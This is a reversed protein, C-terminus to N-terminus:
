GGVVPYGADTKLGTDAPADGDGDADPTPKAKDTLQIGRKLIAAKVTKRGDMHLWEDLQKIDTSAKVAKLAEIVGMVRINVVTDGPEYVVEPAVEPASEVKFIGKSRCASFYPDAIIYTATDADFENAGIALVIKKPTVRRTAKTRNIIIQSM